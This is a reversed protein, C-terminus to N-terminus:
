DAPMGFVEDISVTFSPVTPSTFTDGEGFTGFVQYRDEGLVLVKITESDPGCIWYEPVRHRAYLARKFGRDIHATSPSLIEIVLDPAGQVNDKTIIHSREKSIFLLDPQVIDTETFYVETSSFFVEGIAEAKAIPGIHLGLNSQLRQHSMRPAAALILEGDHLEYRKDEPTNRYDEYTFKIRPKQAVVM